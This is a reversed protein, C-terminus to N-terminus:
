IVYGIFQLNGVALAALVQQNGGTAGNSGRNALNLTILFNLQCCETTM